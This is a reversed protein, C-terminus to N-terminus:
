QASMLVPRTSECPHGHQDGTEPLFNIKWGCKLVPRTSECPHGHQGRFKTKEPSRKELITRWSNMDKWQWVQVLFVVLWLM